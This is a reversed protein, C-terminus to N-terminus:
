NPGKRRLQLYVTPGTRKTGSLSGVIAVSSQCTLFFRPDLTALKQIEKSQRSYSGREKVGAATVEDVPNGPASERRSLGTNARYPKLSTM